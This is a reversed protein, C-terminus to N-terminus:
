RAAVLGPASATALGRQLWEDNREVRHRFTVNVRTSVVVYAAWALVTILSVISRVDPGGQLGLNALIVFGASWAVFVMFCVPFARSRMLLLVICGIQLMEAVVLVGLLLPLISIISDIANQTFMMGLAVFALAGFIVGAVLQVLLLMTWGGIGHLPHQAAIEPPLLVWNGEERIQDARIPPPPAESQAAPPAPDAIPEVGLIMTWGRKPLQERLREENEFTEEIATETKGDSVRIRFHPM